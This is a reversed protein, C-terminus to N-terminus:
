QAKLVLRGRAGVERFSEHLSTPSSEWRTKTDAAAVSALLAVGRSKASGPDTDSLEVRTRSVLKPDISMSPTVTVPRIKVLAQLIV